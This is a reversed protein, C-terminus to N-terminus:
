AWEGVHWQGLTNKVWVYNAWLYKVGPYNAWTNLQGM